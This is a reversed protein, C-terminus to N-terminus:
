PIMKSLLSRFYLSLGAFGSSLSIQIIDKDQKTGLHPLWAKSTRSLDRSISDVTAVINDFEKGTLLPKWPSSIATMANATEIM